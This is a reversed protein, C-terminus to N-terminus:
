GAPPPAEGDEGTVSGPWDIFADITMPAGPTAESDRLRQVLAGNRLIAAGTAGAPGIDM